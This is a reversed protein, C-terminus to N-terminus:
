IENEGESLDRATFVPQEDWTVVGKRKQDADVGDTGGEM